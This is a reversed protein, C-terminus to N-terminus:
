RRLVGDYWASVDEDVMSLPRPGGTLVVTNFAAPDFRGGLVAEARDRMDLIRQRGAFYSAAQGPWVAYRAVEHEMAERPLGTTEVLYSVAEEHSWGQAHLGTDVVLRAARFLISQLYGIRGLPDDSYLGNADALDEAYVAWGEGYAINWIMQRLLPLRSETAAMASETHHGPIGEHHFLTPLAFDPWDGMDRLNIQFLGPSTGNATAPVYTAGTFVAERYAPMRTVVLTAEPPDNLVQGLVARAEAAQAELLALVAARDEPTPEHLEGPSAALIRLREAASGETLGLADFAADIEATVTKVADLGMDHLFAPDAGPETHYALVDRYYADGEPLSSLGSSAPADEMLAAVDDAFATYAPVVEDVLLRMAAARYDNATLGESPELGGVVNGFRQLLPHADIPQRAVDRLRAELLALVFRPPIIGNDADSILRRKEDAIAGPLAALRDLYDEADDHSALPQGSILLEPVDTWAGSLQDVAYPRAYGPGYRGFGYAELQTLGQYEQRIIDVHRALGSDGPIAPLANLRSLLELRLLRTREFRAQSRDDLRQNFTFGLRPEEMGLRTATEPSLALETVATDLFVSNIQRVTGRAIGDENVPPTCAVLAALASVGAFVGPKAKLNLFPIM